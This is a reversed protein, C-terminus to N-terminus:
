KSSGEIYPKNQEYLQLRELFERKDSPSEAKSVAERQHRCAEEFRGNVAYAAALTDLAAAGEMGTRRAEVLAYELAKAADRVSGDPHTALIWASNGHADSLSPNLEIARQYDALADRVRGTREYALGRKYFLYALREDKPNGSVAIAKEIASDYDRVAEAFKGLQSLASGRQRYFNPNRDDDKIAKTFQEVAKDYEGAGSAAEGTAAAGAAAIPDRFVNIGSFHLIVAVGVCGLLGSFYMCPFPLLRYGRPFFRLAAVITFLWLLSLIGPLTWKSWGLLLSMAVDDYHPHNAAFVDKLIYLHGVAPLVLALALWNTVGPIKGPPSRRLWFLGGAVCLADVLPGGAKICFEATPTLPASHLRFVHLFSLQPSANFALGMLYHGCEHLFTCLPFLLMGFLVPYGVKNMLPRLLASRLPPHPTRSPDSSPASM